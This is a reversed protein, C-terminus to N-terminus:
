SPARPQGELRVGERRRGLLSRCSARGCGWPPPPSCGPGCCSGRRRGARPSRAPSPPRPAPLWTRAPSSALAGGPPGRPNPRRLGRAGRPAEVSSLGLDVGRPPWSGWAPAIPAPRLGPGALAYHPRSGRPGPLAEPGARGRSARPPRAQLGKRPERRPVSVRSPAESPGPSRGHTGLQARSSRDARGLARRQPEERASPGRSGSFPRAHSTWRRRPSPLCIM